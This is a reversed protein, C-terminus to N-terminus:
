LAAVPYFDAPRKYTPNPPPYFSVPPSNLNLQRPSTLDKSTNESSLRLTASQSKGEIEKEKGTTREEKDGKQGSQKKKSQLLKTQVMLHKKALHKEVEWYKLSQLNKKLRKAKESPSCNDETELEAEGICDKLREMEGLYNNMSLDSIVGDKKNRKDISNNDRSELTIAKSTPKSELTGSSRRSGTNKKKKFSSLSMNTNFKDIEGEM